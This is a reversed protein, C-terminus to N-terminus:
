WGLPMSKSSSIGGMHPPSSVSVQISRPNGSEDPFYTLLWSRSPQRTLCCAARIQVEKLPKGAGKSKENRRFMHSQIKMEVCLPMETKWGWHKLRKSRSLICQNELLSRQQELVKINIISMWKTRPVQKFGNKQQVLNQEIQVFRTLESTLFRAFLCCM